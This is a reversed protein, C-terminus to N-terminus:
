HEFYELLKIKKEKIIFEEDHENVRNIVDSINFWKVESLEEEQITFAEKQLSCTVYFFYTLEYHDESTIYKRKAFPYLEEEKIEIGIEEKIERLAADKFREQEEVHGTLLAWKNPYSKKNASRKQLLIQNQQNIVFVCIEKHICKQDQEESYCESIRNEDIIEILEM